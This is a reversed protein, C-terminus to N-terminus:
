CRGPVERSPSNAKQQANAGFHMSKKSRPNKIRFVRKKPQPMYRKLREGVYQQMFGQRMIVITFM